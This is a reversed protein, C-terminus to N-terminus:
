AIGISRGRGSRIERVVERVLEQAGIVNARNQYTGNVRRYVIGLHAASTHVTPVLVLKRVYVSQYSLAILQEHKSRYHWTLTRPPAFLPIALDLISEQTGFDLVEDEGGSDDDTSVYDFFNTPPLQKPDGVIILQKGRAVTGLADEP